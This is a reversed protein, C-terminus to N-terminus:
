ETGYDHVPEMVPLHRTAYLRVQAETELGKCFDLRKRLMVSVALATDPDVGLKEIDAEVDDLAAEVWRKSADRVFQVSSEPMYRFWYMEYIDQFVVYQLLHQNHSRFSNVTTSSRTLSPEECNDVTPRENYYAKQCEKAHSLHASISVYSQGCPGLCRVRM